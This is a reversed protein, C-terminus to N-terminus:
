FSALIKVQNLIDTFQGGSSQKVDVMGTVYQLYLDEAMSFELGGRFHHERFDISGDKTDFKQYGALLAFKKHVAYYGGISLLTAEEEQITANIKTEKTRKVWSVSTELPYKWNLFSSVDLKLGGGMKAFVSVDDNGELKDLEEIAAFQGAVELIEDYKVLLDLDLGARNPTALGCSMIGHILLEGDDCVGTANTYSNKEYPNYQAQSTERSPTYHYVHNYLADAFSVLAGSGQDNDIHMIREPLFTMSQALPNNFNKENRVYKTNIGFHLQKTKWGLNIDALLAKGWVESGISSKSTLDVAKASSFVMETLADFVLNEHSAIKAVDFGLKSGFNQIRSGEAPAIVNNDWSSVYSDADDWQYTYTAGLLFKGAFIMDFNSGAAYQDASSTYSTSDNLSTMFPSAAGGMYGQPDLYEPRQIRAGFGEFRIESTGEEFNPAINFNFGQLVRENDSLFYEAMAQQREKAFIKPEMLMKTEPSWLTLPSYKQKFDGLNYGFWSGNKGDMSMWRASIPRNRDAFYTQSNQHFRLITRFSSIEYPRFRFDLDFNAFQTKESNEIQKNLSNANKDVTFETWEGRLQGHLEIGNRALFADYQEELSQQKDLVDSAYVSNLAFLGGLILSVSKKNKLINTKIM